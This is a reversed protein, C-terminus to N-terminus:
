TFARIHNDNNQLLVDVIADRLPERKRKTEGPLGPEVNVM